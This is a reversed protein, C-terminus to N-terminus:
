TISNRHQGAYIRVSLWGSLMIVTCIINDCLTFAINVRPCPISVTPKRLCLLLTFIPLKMGRGGNLRNNKDRDDDADNNSNNNNHTHQLLQKSRYAFTTNWNLFTKGTSIATLLCTMATNVQSLTNQRVWITRIAIMLVKFTPCTTHKVTQGSTQTM